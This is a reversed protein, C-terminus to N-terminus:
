KRRHWSFPSLIRTRTQEQLVGSKAVKVATFLEQLYEEQVICKTDYPLKPSNYLLKEAAQILQETM